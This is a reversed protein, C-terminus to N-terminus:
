TAWRADLVVHLCGFPPSVGVVGLVTVMGVELRQGALGLEPYSRHDEKVEQEWQFTFGCM